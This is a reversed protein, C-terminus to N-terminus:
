KEHFATEGQRGRPPEPAFPLRAGLPKRRSRFGRAKPNRPAFPLWPAKPKLPFPDVRNVVRSGEVNAVCRPLGTKLADLLDFELAGVGRAGVAGMADEDM